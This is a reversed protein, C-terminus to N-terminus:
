NSDKSHQNDPPMENTSAFVLAELRFSQSDMPLTQRTGVDRITFIIRATLVSYLFVEMPILMMKLAVPMSISFVLNLVTLFLIYVYFMMGDRYIIHILGNSDIGLQRYSQFASIAMLVLILLQLFISMAAYGTLYRPSASILFCGRFGHYPPPGHQMLNVNKYVLFSAVAVDAVFLIGVGVGVAKNRHWVAWTRLFLIADAFCILSMELWGIMPNIVKCAELSVNPFLEGYVMLFAMVFATYRVLFFLVKTCTWRSSWILKIELHLTLYYDYVFVAVASLLVYDLILRQDKTYQVVKASDM